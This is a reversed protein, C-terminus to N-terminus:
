NAANAAAPHKRVIEALTPRRSDFAAASKYGEHVGVRRGDRYYWVTPWPGPFWDTGDLIWDETGRYDPGGYDGVTWAARSRSLTRLDAALNDCPRCDTGAPALFVVAGTYGGAKTAPSDASVAGSSGIGIPETKKLCGALLVAALACVILRGRM